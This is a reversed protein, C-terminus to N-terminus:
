IDPFLYRLIKGYSEAAIVLEDQSLEELATHAVQITGTGFLYRKEVQPLSPIDTGYFVPAVELGPVDTDLIVPGNSFPAFTVNFKAGAGVARQKIPDLAEEVQLRIVDPSGEAVRIAISANANEPVINSAIGGSIVGVNLTSNGLLESAPLEPELANLATVADTVYNIANIGLWPYASHAAKGVVNLTVSLSGKHGSALKGETPEGFISAKFTVNKAYAAFAKMGDGGIEEGVVFLLGLRPTDTRSQFFSHAAIIQPAVAGKADVTGRGYHYITGNKTRREFPIYPPVTDLHSTILVEPWVGQDKLETPYAFVNFRGSDVDVKEVYYGLTTLYEDVFTACEIEDRSLSPIDVLKEHLDFLESIEEETLSSPQGSPSPSPASSSACASSRYQPSPVARGLAFFLVVPLYLTSLM